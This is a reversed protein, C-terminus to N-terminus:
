SSYSLQTMQASASITTLFEISEPTLTANVANEWEVGYKKRCECLQNLFVVTEHTTHSIHNLNMSDLARWAPSNLRM